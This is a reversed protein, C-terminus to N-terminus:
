VLRCRASPTAQRTPFYADHRAARQGRRTGYQLVEVAIPVRHAPPRLPHDATCPLWEGDRGPRGECFGAPQAGCGGRTSDM